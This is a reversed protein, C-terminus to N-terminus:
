QLQCSAIPLRESLRLLLNGAVMRRYDASARVDDIPAVTARVTVAAAELADRTLRHGVLIQEAEPVVVIGPGVSGWALAAQEVVGADSIWLLAAISALSCALANRHGVKEFHHITRGRPKRVCVAKVIEGQQLATLGPGRLFDRIPMTRTEQRSALEVEAQLVFLPPLTDGAPSATVLNGGITGMARILPSGLTRIAQHLVGLHEGVLPSDLLQAHTATAGIRISEGLDVVRRLEDIRELCIYGPEGALGKRVKVLVDTGGAYLLASPADELCQWLDELSRPLLVPKM